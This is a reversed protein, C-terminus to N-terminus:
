QSIISSIDKNRGMILLVDCYLLLCVHYRLYEQSVVQMYNKKWDNNRAIQLAYSYELFSSSLSKMRWYHIKYYPKKLLHILIRASDPWHCLLPDRYSVSDITLVGEQQFYTM